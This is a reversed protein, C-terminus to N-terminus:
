STELVQPSGEQEPQSPLKQKRPNPLNFSGLAGALTGTAALVFLVIYSTQSLILGGLVPIVILLGTLTNALGIYIPRQGAPAIELIFNFYGLMISGEFIGMLVYLGPYIWALASGFVGTSIVLALAPVSFALWNTIQVVRQSGWRDAVLGLVIGAIAVGVTNAAAFLGVSSPPLHQVEIGYVVYFSAALSGLGTLLRVLMVRSFAANERWVNLLQPLYDRLSPRLEVVAEPPEVIFACAIFSLWFFLSASGFIVAYNLPFAPGHEGLLYRIWVGLGISVIGIIAQGIGIMRGRTEPALSKGMLDFWALAAVADTMTFYALTFLFLFMTFAPLRTGGFLVWLTFLSFIPRGIIAAWILIPYKRPKNSLFNAVLVQPLLWGGLWVSSVAGILIKNDTLTAAFAPLTTSTSAFTIGLGFFVYDGFFALWNRRFHQTAIPSQHTM